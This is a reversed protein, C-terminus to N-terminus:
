ASLHRSLATPPMQTHPQLDVRRMACDACRVYLVTGDSTRHRSEVLWAHEHPAPTSPIRPTPLTQLSTM